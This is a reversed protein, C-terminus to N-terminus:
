IGGLEVKVVYILLGNIFSINIGFAADASIWGGDFEAWALDDAHGIKTVKIGASILIENIQVITAETDM